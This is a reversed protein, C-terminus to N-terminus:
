ADPPGEASVIVRGLGRTRGSGVARILRMATILAADWGDSGDAPGSVEAYLDLPIAVEDFRLSHSKAVGDQIATARKVQFLGGILSPDALLAQRENQPLAANDFRLAGPTPDTLLPQDPLARSGFLAETMGATVHRLGEAERVAERLLGKVQRGPIIPLGDHDRACRSDFSGAMGAGTGVRWYSLIRFRVMM